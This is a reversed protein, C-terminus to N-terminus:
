WVATPYILSQRRWNCQLEYRLNSVTAAPSRYMCIERRGCAVMTTGEPAFCVTYVDELVLRGHESGASGRWWHGLCGNLINGGGPRRCAAALYQGDASYSLSWISVPLVGGIWEPPPDADPNEYTRFNVEGAAVMWSHEGTPKETLPDLLTVRNTAARPPRRGAVAVEGGDPRVAVAYVPSGHRWTATNTGTLTDWFRVTGDQGGTVLRGDPLYALARVEKTHGILRRM